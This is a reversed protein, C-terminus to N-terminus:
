DGYISDKPLSLFSHIFHYELFSLLFIYRELIKSLHKKEVNEARIDTAKASVSRERVSHTVGFDDGGSSMTSEHRSVSKVYIFFPM